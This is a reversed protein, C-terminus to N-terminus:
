GTVVLKKLIYVEFIIQGFNVKEFQFDALKSLTGLGTIKRQLASIHLLKLINSSESFMCKQSGLTSSDM